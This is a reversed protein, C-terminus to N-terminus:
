AAEEKFGNTLVSDALMMKQRQEIGGALYKAVFDKDGMATTKWNKVLEYEKATVQQGNLFQSTVESRIGLDAFLSATAAMQRQETTAPQGPLGAKGALVAAVVDDGTNASLATLDRLEQTAAADGSCVKAGWDKDALRADLVARAETANTPPTQDTM